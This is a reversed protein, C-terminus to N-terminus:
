VQCKKLMTLPAAIKPFNKVFRRYYGALGLFSRLETVTMPGPWAIIAEIKKTDVQIGDKSVVHGLFAM